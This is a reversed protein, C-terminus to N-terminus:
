FLKERITENLPKPPVCENEMKQWDSKLSWCFIIDRENIECNKEKMLM